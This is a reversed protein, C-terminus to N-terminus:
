LIRLFTMGAYDVREAVKVQWNVTWRDGAGPAAGGLGGFGGTSPTTKPPTYTRPPTVYDMSPQVCPWGRVDLLVVEALAPVPRVINAADPRADRAGVYAKWQTEYDLVKAANVDAVHAELARRANAQAQAYTTDAFSSNQHNPDDQIPLLDSM